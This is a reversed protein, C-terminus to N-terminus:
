TTGKLAACGAEDLIMDTAGRAAAFGLRDYFRRAAPTRDYVQLRLYVAGWAKAADAFAAGLLRRGLGTGRAEPAVWLDSVYLGAGGRLTSFAPSYLALGALAGEGAIQARFAPTSGWGARALTAADVRYADGLDVALRRLGEQLAAADAEQAIRITSDM